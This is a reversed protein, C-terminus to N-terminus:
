GGAELEGIVGEGGAFELGDGDGVFEGEWGNQAPPQTNNLFGWRLLKSAQGGGPVRSLGQVVGLDTTRNKGSPEEASSSVRKRRVAAHSAQAIPETGSTDTLVM